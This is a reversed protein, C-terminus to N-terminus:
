RAVEGVHVLQHGWRDLGFPQEDMGHAALATRVTPQAATPVHLLLFGGGGAGILKGGTAGAALADRYARDVAPLTVGSGLTQKIEWHRGLAAGLLGTDGTSLADGVVATLEKIEHLRNEVERDGVRVSDGQSALVAGADRTIGTFFLLLEEDLHRVVAPDPEIREAGVTGDREFRLRRFGGLAALYHDQKGVPRHLAEIEIAAAAEALETGRLGGQRGTPGSTLGGILAVCFAASSGMGTGGPVDGFSALQIRGGDWHRGLAARAFPNSLGDASPVAACSDLCARVETGAGGPRGVVTVRLNTSM